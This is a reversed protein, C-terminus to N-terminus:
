AVSISSAEPEMMRSFYASLRRSLEESEMAELLDHECLPRHGVLLYEDEDVHSNYRDVFASPELPGDWDWLLGDHLLVAHLAVGDRNEMAMLEGGVVSQLATAVVLCGGNFPGLTGESGPASPFYDGLERLFDDHVLALREQWVHEEM